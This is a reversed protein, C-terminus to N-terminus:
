ALQHDWSNHKDADIILQNGVPQNTPQNTTPQDTPQWNNIFTPTCISTRHPVRLDVTAEQGGEIIHYVLGIITAIVAHGSHSLLKKALPHQRVPPHTDYCIHLQSRILTKLKQAASLDISSTHSQRFPNLLM